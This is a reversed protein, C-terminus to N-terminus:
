QVNRKITLSDINFNTVPLAMKSYLTGYQEGILRHSNLHFYIMKEKPFHFSDAVMQYEDPKLLRSTSISEYEPGVEFWECITGDALTVKYEKKAAPKDNSCLNVITTAIVILFIILLLKKM